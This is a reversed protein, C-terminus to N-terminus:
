NIDNIVNRKMLGINKNKYIVYYLEIDTNSTKLNNFSVFLPTESNKIINKILNIKIKNNKLKKLKNLIEYESKDKIFLKINKDKQSEKIVNNFSEIIFNNLTLEDRNISNLQISINENLYNNNQTSNNYILPKVFVSNNSRLTNKIKINQNDAKVNEKNSIFKMPEINDINKFINVITNINGKYDLHYFNENEEFFKYYLKYLEQLTIEFINKNKEKILFKIFNTSQHYINFHVLTNNINLKKNLDSYYIYINAENDNYEAFRNLRGIRQLLNEPSNIETTMTKTSINLSAQAIPGAMVIYDNNNKNEGFYKFINDIAEKKHIPSLKSHFNILNADDIYNLLKISELQSQTATNLICIQKEMPNEIKIEDGEVLNIIFKKNNFSELSKVNKEINIDLINKIFFYNPTASVLLTDVKNTMKKMLLIEKFFFMMNNLHFFEHFEDIILFSNILELLIDINKHSNIMSIIQDITTINIDSEFDVKDIEKYQNNKFIIKEEGTYLGISLNSSNGFYKKNSLEKFLSECIIVRPAIIFVKKKNSNNNTIWEFMIKTKGCGAPGSLVAIDNEENLEKSVKSQLINRKQNHENNIELEKFNNLMLNIENKLTENNSKQQNYYNIVINEDFIEKSNLSSIYWDSTILISRLLTKIAEIFIQRKSKENTLNLYINQSNTNVLCEENTWFKFYPTNKQKDEDISFDNINTYNRVNNIIQKIRTNSYIADYISKYTNLQETRFYKDHHWYILYNVINKLSDKKLSKNFQFTTFNSLFDNLSDFDDFLNEIILFSIENHRVKIKFDDSKNKLKESNDSEDLLLKDDDSNNVWNQFESDLKGIDHFFAGMYLTAKLNEYSYTIDDIDYQNVLKNYQKEDITEEFIKVALNAIVKSHQMLDQKKTNALFIM